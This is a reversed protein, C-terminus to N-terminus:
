RVLLQTPLQIHKPTFNDRNNLQEIMLTVAEIGLAAAPQDIFNFISPSLLSFTSKGFCTVEMDDPIKIGAEAAATYMGLAVPYTVALIYDPRKGTALIKKFGNYGDEESFGGHVILDEDVPHNNHLMAQRFGETRARGINIHEYGGLHALCTYGKKIAYETASYAGGYDDVSISSAGQLDPVRDIFVLPIGLKLVREFVALDKTEQTVSVILGDVKMSLLSQIHFFERDAHEQSITLVIEYNNKFATDYVAEIVTSFFIHAIKPVVLGITNSRRSSLNRAMLNPVYGLKEALEKVRAKTESSIDPHNRLAKSVTVNSVNLRKALDELRIPRYKENM